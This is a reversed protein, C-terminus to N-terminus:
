TKEERMIQMDTYHICEKKKTPAKDPRNEIDHLKARVFFNIRANESDYTVYAREKSQQNGQGKKCCFSKHRFFLSYSYFRLFFDKLFFVGYYYVRSKDWGQFMKVVEEALFLCLFSRKIFIDWLIGMGTVFHKIRFV